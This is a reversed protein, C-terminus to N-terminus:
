NLNKELSLTSSRISLVVYCYTSSSKDSPFEYGAQIQAGMDPQLLTFLYVYVHGLLITLTTTGSVLIRHFCQFLFGRGNFKNQYYDYM